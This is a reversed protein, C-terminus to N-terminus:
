ATAARRRFLLDLPNYLVWVYCLALLYLIATGFMRMPMMSAVGFHYPGGWEEATTWIVLSLVIGIPGMVRLWRGSLLSAALAAEAAGILLAVLKPGIGLSLAIWGQVYAGRWTGALDKQAATLYDLFHNIFYPQFKLAADYAWLLGFLVRALTLIENRTIDPETDLREFGIVYLFLIVYPLGLGPDTAEQGFDGGHEMAIWVFLGYLVGVWGMTQVKRRSLLSVAVALKVFTDGAVLLSVWASDMGVGLFRAMEIKHSWSLSTWFDYLIVLGVVTRLVCCFGGMPPPHSASVLAPNEGEIGVARLARRLWPDPLREAASPQFMTTQDM